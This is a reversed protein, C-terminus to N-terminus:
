IQNPLLFRQRSFPLQFETYDKGFKRALLRVLILHDYSIQVVECCIIESLTKNLVNCVLFHLLYVSVHSPFTIKSPASVMRGINKDAVKECYLPIKCSSLFHKTTLDHTKHIQQGQSSLPPRLFSGLLLPESGWIYISSYWLILPAM